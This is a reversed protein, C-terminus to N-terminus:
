GYIYNSKIVMNRPHKKFFKLGHNNFEILTKKVWHEYRSFLIIPLTMFFLIALTGIRIRTM